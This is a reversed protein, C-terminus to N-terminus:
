RREIHVLDEYQGFEPKVVYNLAPDFSSASTEVRRIQFFERRIQVMGDQDFTYTAGSAVTDSEDVFERHIAMSLFLKGPEVEKFAYTLSERLHSDLFGVGIVNDAVNVFCDPQEASGVLATYPHQNLHAARAKEDSWFETPKKKARFWSKCYYIPRKM